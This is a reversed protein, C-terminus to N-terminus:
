RLGAGDPAIGKAKLAEVRARHKKEWTGLTEAADAATQGPRPGSSRRGRGRCWSSGGRRGCDRRRVVTVGRMPANIRRGTRAGPSRRCRPRLPFASARSEAVDRIVGDIFGVVGLRQAVACVNGSAVAMEADGAESSSMARGPSTSPARCLEHRATRVTFAPGAIRPMGPWLPNIGIRMIWGLDLVDALTTPSLARFARVVEPAPRSIDTRIASANQTM